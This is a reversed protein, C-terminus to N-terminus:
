WDSIDDLATLKGIVIEDPCGAHGHWHYDSQLDIILAGNVAYTQKVHQMEKSSRM